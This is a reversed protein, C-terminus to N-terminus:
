IKSRSTKRITKKIAQKVFGQPAQTKSYGAELRSIYPVKNELTDKAKKNWGRSARGLKYHTKGSGPTAPRNSQLNKLLKGTFSDIFKNIDKNLEGVTKAASSVRLQIM